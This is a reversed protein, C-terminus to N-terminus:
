KVPDNLVEEFKAEQAKEILERKKDQVSKNLAKGGIFINQDEMSSQDETTSGPLKPVFDIDDIADFKIKAYNEKISIQFDAIQKTIDMLNKGVVTFVEIMRPSINGTRISEMNAQQILEHLRQQYYLFGLQEADQDIKDAIFDQDIMNPDRIVVKVIKRISQRAKRIFDKKCKEYNIDFIPEPELEEPIEDVVGDQGPEQSDSPVHINAANLLEQLEKAQDKIKM